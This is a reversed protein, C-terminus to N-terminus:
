VNGEDENRAQTQNSYIGQDAVDMFLLREASIYGYSKNLPSSQLKLPLISIM